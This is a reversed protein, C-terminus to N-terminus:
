VKDRVDQQTGTKGSGTGVAMHRVMVSKSWECIHLQHSNLIKASSQNNENNGRTSIMREMENPILGHTNHPFFHTGSIIRAM